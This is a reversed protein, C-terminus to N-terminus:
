QIAARRNMDARLLQLSHGYRAEVDRTFSNPNKSLAELAQDEKVTFIGIPGIGRDVRGSQDTAVFLLYEHAMSFDSIQTDVMTVEVDEIRVTGGYRLMLIENSGLPLLGQPIPGDFPDCVACTPLKKQSLNEIIKFKYWTMIEINNQVFSEKEAPRAIVVGFHALAEDVDKVTAYEALPGPLVLYEKGEIRARKAYWSLTGRRETADLEAIRKQKTISSIKLNGVFALIGVLFLLSIIKIRM